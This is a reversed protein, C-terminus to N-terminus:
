GMGKAAEAYIRLAIKKAAPSNHFHIENQYKPWAGRRNRILFVLGAEIAEIADRDDDYKKDFVFVHVNASKRKAFADIWKYGGYGGRKTGEKKTHRYAAFGRQMRQQMGCHAEGVYWIEKGASVVYLKRREPLLAVDKGEIVPTLKGTIKDKTSPRATLAYQESLYSPKM